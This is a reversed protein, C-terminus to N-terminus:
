RGLWASGDNNLIVDLEDQTFPYSSITELAESPTEPYQLRMYDSAYLVRELGWSRLRWVMEEKIALPADKFHKLCSSTDVFLNEANFLNQNLGEIWIDIESRDADNTCHAFTIPM